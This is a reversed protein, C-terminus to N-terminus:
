TRARPTGTAPAAPARMVRPSWSTRAKMAFASRADRAPADRRAASRRGDGRHRARREGAHRRPLCEFPRPPRHSAPLARASRAPQALSGAGGHSGPSDDDVFSRSGVPHRCRGACVIFWSRFITASATPPFSSSWSSPGISAREVIRAARARSRAPLAQQSSCSADHTRWRRSRCWCRAWARAFRRRTTSSSHGPQVALTSAGAPLPSTRSGAPARPVDGRQLAAECDGRVRAPACSRDTTSSTWPSRAMHGTACRWRKARPTARQRPAPDDRVTAQTDQELADLERLNRVTKPLCCSHMSRWASASFLSSAAPARVPGLPAHRATPRGDPRELGLAACLSAAILLDFFANRTVGEGGSAIAGIVLSLGLYILVFSLARRLRPAAACAAACWVTNGRACPAASLAACTGITASLAQQPRIRAPRCCTTSSCRIRATPRSGSDWRCALPSARSGSRSDNAGIYRSGCLRGGRPLPILLHKTFGGLLMLAAGVIVALM